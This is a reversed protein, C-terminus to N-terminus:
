HKTEALLSMGSVLCRKPYDVCCDWHDTIAQLRNCYKCGDGKAMMINAKWSVM